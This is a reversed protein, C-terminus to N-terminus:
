EECITQVFRNSSHRNRRVPRSRHPIHTLFIFSRRPEQCNHTSQLRPAREKRLSSFPEHGRTHFRQRTWKDDMGLSDFVFQM